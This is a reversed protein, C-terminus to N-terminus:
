SDDSSSPSPEPVPVLVEAFASDARSAPQAAARKFRAMDAHFTIETKGINFRDGDVLNLRRLTRGAYTIGNRSGLDELKFYGRSDMTLRAHRRSVMEDDLALDVESAKRGIIFETRELPIEVDPVNPRKVTLRADAQSM